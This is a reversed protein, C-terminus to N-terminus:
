PSDRDGREACGNRGKRRDWRITEQWRRVLAPYIPLILRYEPMRQLQIVRELVEPLAPGGGGLAPARGRVSPTRARVGSPEGFSCVAGRVRVDDGRLKARSTKRRWSTSTSNRTAAATTARTTCVRCSVMASARCRVSAAASDKACAGPSRAARSLVSGVAVSWGSASAARVAEPTSAMMTYRSSPTVRVWLSVVCSPLCTMPGYAPAASPLGNVLVNLPASPRETIEAAGTLSAAPLTTAMTEAGTVTSDTCFVTFRCSGTKRALAPTATARAAPPAASTLRRSPRWVCPRPGASIVRIYSCWSATRCATRSPTSM